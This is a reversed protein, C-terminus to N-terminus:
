AAARLEYRLAEEIAAPDVGLDEALDKVSDGAGLRGAVVRTEVGSGVLFPQGFRYRPDIAVFRPAEEVEGSARTVPYLRRAKGRHDREIRALYRSVVDRMEQQGELSANILPGYQEIFISAGDTLMDKDALPHETGFQRRLYGLAKRVAELRVRHKRTLSGLVHVEILNEFSLRRQKKDAIQIVPRFKRKEGGPGDYTTGLVWARVTSKPLQLLGAVEQSTYAPVKEPTLGGYIDPSRAVARHHWRRIL